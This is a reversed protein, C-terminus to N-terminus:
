LPLLKRVVKEGHPGLLGYVSAALGAMTVGDPMTLDVATLAAGLPAHTLGYFLGVAVVARIGWSTLSRGLIVAPFIQNWVWPWCTAVTDLLLSPPVARNPQNALLPRRCARPSITTARAVQTKTRFSVGV